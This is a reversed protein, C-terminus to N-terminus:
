LIQCGHQPLGPIQQVRSPVECPPGHLQGPLVAGEPAWPEPREHPWGLPQGGPLQLFGWLPTGLSTSSPAGLPVPQFVPGGRLQGPLRHPVTAPLDCESWASKRTPRFCTNCFPAGRSQSLSLAARLPLPPQASTGYGQYTLLVSNETLSLM